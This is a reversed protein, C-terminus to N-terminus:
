WTSFLYASPLHSLQYLALQTPMSLEVCVRAGVCFSFSPLLGLPTSVSLLRGSSESSTIKSFPHTEPQPSVSDWFFYSPSCSWTCMCVCARMDVSVQECVFIYMLSSCYTLWYLIQQRFIIHRDVFWYLATVAYLHTVFRHSHGGKPIWCKRIGEQHVLM